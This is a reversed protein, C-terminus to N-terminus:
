DRHLHHHGGPVPSRERAKVEQIFFQENMVQEKTVWFGAGTGNSAILPSLNCSSYLRPWWGRAAAM